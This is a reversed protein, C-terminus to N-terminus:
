DGASSVAGAAMEGDIWRQFEATDILVRGGIKRVCREFGNKKKNFLLWRLSAETFVASEAAIQKVTKLDKFGM